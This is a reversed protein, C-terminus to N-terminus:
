RKLCGKQEIIISSDAPSSAVIFLFFFFFSGLWVGLHVENHLILLL